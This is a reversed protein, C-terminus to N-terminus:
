RETKGEGGWPALSLSVCISDGPLGSPLHCLSGQSAEHVAEWREQTRQTMPTRYPASAVTELGQRFPLM